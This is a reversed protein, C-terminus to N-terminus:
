FTFGLGLNIHHPDSPQWGLFINLHDINFLTGFDPKIATETDSGGPWTSTFKENFIGLNIYWRFDGRELIMFDLGALLGAGKDDYGVEQTHYEKFWLYGAYFGFRGKTLLGIRVSFGQDAKICESCQQLNTVYALNLFPRVKKVEQTLTDQSLTDQAISLTDQTLAKAPILFSCLIVLLFIDPKKM